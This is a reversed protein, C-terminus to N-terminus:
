GHHTPVTEGVNQILGRWRELAQQRTFNAELMARAQSGMKARLAMDRSLQLISDVLANANGPEIVVGCQYQDVMRAIEGNKACIAILPRGTAAIGYVKSPVILGEVEPRLASGPLEQIQHIPHSENNPAQNAISRAM